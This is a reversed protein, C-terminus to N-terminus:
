HRSKGWAGMSDRCYHLCLYEVSPPVACQPVVNQDRVVRATDAMLVTSSFFSTACAATGQGLNLTKLSSSAVICAGRTGRALPWVGRGLKVQETIDHTSPAITGIEPDLRRQDPLDATRIGLM